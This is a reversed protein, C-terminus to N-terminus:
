GPWRTPVEAWVVKGPPDDIWGWQSSVAEVLQLGRGRVRLPEPSRLQPPEPADDGVEVRVSGNALELSLWRPGHGHEVANSLLETVVLLAPEVAEGTLGWEALVVAVRERTDRLTTVPPRFDWRAIWQLQLAGSGDVPVDQDVDAPVPTMARRRRRRLGSGAATILTLVALGLVLAAPVAAVSMVAVAALVAGLLVIVAVLPLIRRSKMSLSEDV